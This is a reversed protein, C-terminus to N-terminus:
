YITRIRGTRKDIIVSDVPKGRVDTIEAEFFHNKERIKGIRLKRKPIVVKEVIERAEDPTKVTKKAGYWGWRHSKLHDGYIPKCEGKRHEGQQALSPYSVLFFSFLLIFSVIVKKM